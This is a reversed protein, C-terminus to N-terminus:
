WDDEEKSPEPTKPTLAEVKAKLAEIESKQQATLAELAELRKTKESVKAGTKPDIEDSVECRGKRQWTARGKGREGTALEM